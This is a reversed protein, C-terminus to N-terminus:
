KLTTRSAVYMYKSAFSPPSLRKKWPHFFEMKVMCTCLVSFVTNMVKFHVIGQSNLRDLQYHIDM